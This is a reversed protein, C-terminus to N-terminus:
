ADEQDFCINISEDLDLHDLPSVFKQKANRTVHTYRETTESSNHGWLEQIYRLDM